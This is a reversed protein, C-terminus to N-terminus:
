NIRFAALPVATGEAQATGGAPCAVSTRFNGTGTVGDDVARDIQVATDCNLTAIVVVNVWNAPLVFGAGAADSLTFTTGNSIVAYNPTGTVLHGRILGSLVLENIACTRKAATDIAGTGTGAGCAAAVGPISNAPAPLDGPLFNYRSKFSATAAQLDQTTQILDQTQARKILSQASLVGGLLLGIIVLVISMEVLTFGRQRNQALRM